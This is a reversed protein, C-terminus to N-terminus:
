EAFQVQNRGESKSRYLAIDTRKLLIDRKDNRSIISAGISITIARNSLINSTAIKQCINEAIHILESKNDVNALIIAFEEGGIRYFKGLSNVMDSLIKSVEILVKDGGDHGHEDNINKFHDIDLILLSGKADNGLASNLDKEFKRRNSTKTLPDTNSLRKLEYEATKELVVGTFGIVDAGDNKLPTYIATYYHPSGDLKVFFSDYTISEGTLVKKYHKLNDNFGDAGIVDSINLGIAQQQTLNHVEAFFPNIYTYNLDRDVSFYLIPATEVFQRFIDINQVM